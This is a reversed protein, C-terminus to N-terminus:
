NRTAKGPEQQIGDSTVAPTPPPLFVSLGINTKDNNERTIGPYFGSLLTICSPQDQPANVYERIDTLTPPFGTPIQEVLSLRTKGCKVQTGFASWFRELSVVKSLM